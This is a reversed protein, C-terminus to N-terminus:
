GEGQGSGYIVPTELQTLRKQVNAYQRQLVIVQGALQVLARDSADLRQWVTLGQEDRLKNKIQQLLDPEVYILNGDEDWRFLENGASLYSTKGTM